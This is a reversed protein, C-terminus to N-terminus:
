VDPERRWKGVEEQKEQRAAIGTYWRLVGKIDIIVCDPPLTFGGGGRGEEHMVEANKGAKREEQRGARIQM